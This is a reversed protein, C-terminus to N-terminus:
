QGRRELEKRGREQLEAHLEKNMAGLVAGKFLGYFVMFACGGGGTQACVTLIAGQTAKGIIFTAAHAGFVLACFGPDAQCGAITEDSLPTNGEGKGKGTIRQCDPTTYTYAGWVRCYEVGDPDGAYERLWAPGGVPDFGKPIIGKAIDCETSFTEWTCGLYGPQSEACNTDNVHCGDSDTPINGSPDALRIPNASAYGFPNGRWGAHKALPERSLFVGTEPDYYRARLYQLGTGDTQQGAFDFENALGGSPTAEGYVDYTYSKQSVGSANGVLMTSGLGDALYYYWNGSQKM